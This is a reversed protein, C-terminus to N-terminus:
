DTFVIKDNALIQSDKLISYYYIGNDLGNRDILVTGNTSKYSRIISGKADLLDLSFEVLDPIRVQIVSKAPNPFATVEISKSIDSNGAYIDNMRWFDSLNVGNTGTGLYATKNITFAASYRRGSGVFDPLQEWTSTAPDYSYVDDLAIPNSWGGCAVIIRDQHDFVNPYVSQALWLGRDTWTNTEVSYSWFYVQGTQTDEGIFYLIPGKSHINIWNSVNPSNPMAFGPYSSWSDTAPEYIRLAGSKGVYGKGNFSTPTTFRMSTNSTNLQTWTNTSPVYKWFPSTNWSCMYAAGDIVFGECDLITNSGSTASIYPCDAKQTWSNNSPDYEWWDNYITETGTGNIHGFGM